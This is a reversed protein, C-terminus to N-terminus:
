KPGLCRHTRSLAALVAAVGDQALIHQQLAHGVQACLGRLSGICKRGFIAGFSPVLLTGGGGRMGLSRGRCHRQPPAVGVLAAVCACAPALPSQAALAPAASLPHDPAAEVVQALYELAASLPFQHHHLHLGMFLSASTHACAPACCYPLCAIKDIAHIPKQPSRQCMGAKMINSYRPLGHLQQSPKSVQACLQLHM